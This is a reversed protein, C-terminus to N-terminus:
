RRIVESISGLSKDLGDSVQERFDGMIATDHDKQAIGRTRFKISGSSKVKVPAQCIVEKTTTDFVFAWGKIRGPEFHKGSVATAKRSGFSAPDKSPKPLTLEGRVVLLYRAENHNLSNLVRNADRVSDPTGLAALKEPGDSILWSWPDKGVRHKGSPDSVHDKLFDYTTTKVHVIRKERKFKDKVGKVMKDDPCKITQLKKSPSPTAKRIAKFSERWQDTEGIRESLVAPDNSGSCCCGAFWAALLTSFCFLAVVRAASVRNM